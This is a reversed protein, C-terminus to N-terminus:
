GLIVRMYTIMTLVYTMSRQFALLVLFIQTGSEVQNCLNFWFWFFNINTHTWNFTTEVEYLKTQIQTSSIIGLWVQRIRVTLWCGYCSAFMPSRFSFRRRIRGAIFLHSWSECRLGVLNILVGRGNDSLYARGSSGRTHFEYWPCYWNDPPAYYIMLGAIQIWFFLFWLSDPTMIWHCISM